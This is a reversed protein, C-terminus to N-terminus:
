LKQILERLANLIGGKQRDAEPSQKSSASSLRQYFWGHEPVDKLRGCYKQAADIVWIEDNEDEYRAWAHGGQNPITNRDISVSGFKRTSENGIKEEQILREVLYGALLAEHRCVGGHNAIYSGLTVRGDKQGAVATIQDAMKENYPIKKLVLQYVQQLIRETNLDNNDRLKGLAILIDGYATHLADDNEDDIVIAERQNSGLYIGKNIPTDKGIILRRKEGPKDYYGYPAEEDGEEYFGSDKLRQVINATRNELVIRSPKLGEPM